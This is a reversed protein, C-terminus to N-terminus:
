GTFREIQELSVACECITCTTFPLVNQKRRLGAATQNRKKALIEGLGGVGSCYSVVHVLLAFLVSGVVSRSRGLLVSEVKVLNPLTSVHTRSGLVFCYESASRRVWQSSSKWVYQKSPYGAVKPNLSCQNSVTVISPHLNNSPM